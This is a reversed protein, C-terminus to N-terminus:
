ELYYDVTSVVRVIKKPFFVEDEQTRNGPKLEKFQTFYYKPGASWQESQIFIGDAILEGTEKQADIVKSIDKTSISVKIDGSLRSTANQYNNTFVNISPSNIESADFGNRRLFGKLEKEVRAIRRQMEETTNASVQTNLSWWAQDAVVEKESLGKVTVYNSQSKIKTMGYALLVSSLVLGLALVISNKFNM